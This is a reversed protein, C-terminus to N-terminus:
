ILELECRTVVARPDREVFDRVKNLVRNAQVASESVCAIGLTVVKHADQYDVEAVSVNFRAQTRGIISKVVARKDKLSLADSIFLDVQLVGVTM